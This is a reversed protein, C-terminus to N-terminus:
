PMGLLRRVDILMDEAEWEFRLAPDSVIYGGWARKEVRYGGHIIEALKGNILKSEVETEPMIKIVKAEKNLIM